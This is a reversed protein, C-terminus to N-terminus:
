IVFCEIQANCSAVTMREYCRVTCYITWSVYGGVYVTSQTQDIGGEVRQDGMASILFPPSLVILM